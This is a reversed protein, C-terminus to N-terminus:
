NLNWVMLGCRAVYYVLFQDLLANVLFVCTVWNPFICTDGRSFLFIGHEAACIQYVVLLTGSLAVMYFAWWDAGDALLQVAGVVHQRSAAMGNYNIIFMLLCLVSPYIIRFASWCPVCALHMVALVLLRLCDHFFAALCSVGKLLSVSLFAELRATLKWDWMCLLPPFKDLCNCDYNSWGLLWAGILAWCARILTPRSMM